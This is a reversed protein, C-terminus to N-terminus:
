MLDDDNDSDDDMGYNRRQMIVKKASTDEGAGGELMDILQKEGVKTRLQGSTALKILHDEVQRAKEKRVLNLRTMREKAAPELVQDLISARMEEMQQQQAQQQQMQDVSPMGGDAGM